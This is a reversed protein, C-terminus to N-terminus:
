WYNEVDEAEQEGPWIPSTVILVVLDSNGTNRFQFHTGAPITASLGCEADIVEESDRDGKRWLQGDGSVFYWIEDVTKHRKAKSIHKAPLLCKSLGAGRVDPLKWIYSGDPAKYSHQAPLKM